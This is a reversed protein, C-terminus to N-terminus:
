VSFASSSPNRVTSRVSMPTCTPLMFRIAIVSSTPCSDSVTLTTPLAGISCVSDAEIPVTMSFRLM